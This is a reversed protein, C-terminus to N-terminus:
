NKRQRMQEFEADAHANFNALVAPDVPQWEIVKKERWPSPWFRDLTANKKLNPSCILFTSVRLREFDYKMRNDHATVKADFWRPTSDWFERETMGIIAATEILGQWDIRPPSNHDGIGKKKGCRRGDAKAPFRIAGYYMGDHGGPRLFAM